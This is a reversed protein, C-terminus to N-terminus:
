RRLKPDLADRLGDGVLNLATVTLFIAISPPLILHWYETKRGMDLVRGWSPITMDGLGLFSLGSETLIATPVGFSAAVIVPGLANPLIHRFVIRANSYGMSRAALVYERSRERLFEGRVLRTIGTWSVFGIAGMILFLSKSEFLAVITLILFLGPICILVEVVRMIVLDTRGGYFGALAGFVTGITIYIAVAVVGITLSIRTGYLIRTFVDRGTEDTGFLHDHDGEVFSFTRFHHEAGPLGQAYGYPVPARSVDVAARHAAEWRARWAAVAAEGGSTLRAASGPAAPEELWRPFAPPRPGARAAEWAARGEETLWGAEPGAPPPAIRDAQAARLRAEREHWDVPLRSTSLVSPLLLTALLCVAASARRIRGRRPVGARRALLRVLLWIPVTFMAANFFRDLWHEWTLEDFLGTLWPHEDLAPSWAGDGDLDEFPEAVRAPEGKRSAPTYAGDSNADTWPEADSRWAFPQDCAIAPAYVALVALALTVWLGAVATKKRRFMRAVIQWRGEPPPSTANV